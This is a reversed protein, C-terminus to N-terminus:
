ETGAHRHVDYRHCLLPDVRRHTTGSYQRRALVKFHTSRDAQGHISGSRRRYTKCVRGFDFRRGIGACQIFNDGQAITKLCRQAFAPGCTCDLTGFCTGRCTIAGQGSLTSFNPWSPLLFLGSLRRREVPLCCTYRISQRSPSSRRPLFLVQLSRQYIPPEPLSRSM